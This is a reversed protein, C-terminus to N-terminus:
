SGVEQGQLAAANVLRNITNRVVWQVVPICVADGFGFLAQNEKVTIKYTDPVGQLRAYERPSMNRAHVKGYGVSLVIQKSSGGRPTRLCGAIGDARVEARCRGNRVRRYVTLYSFRKRGALEDVVNRHSPMMQQLLYDRRDDSWWSVHREPLHEILNELNNKRNPLIPMNTVCGWELDPNQRMKLLVTEPRAACPMVDQPSEFLGDIQALEMPFGVVFIRVRSQPVFHTANVQL